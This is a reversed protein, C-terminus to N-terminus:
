GRELWSGARERRAAKGAEDLHKWGRVVGVCDAGGCRCAFPEALESEHCNYDITIEADAPIVARAVLDRGSFAANPSCAHNLFRLALSAGPEVHREPGFQLSMRTRQATETGEFRAMFAGAEFARAAFVGQEGDAKPKALIDASV